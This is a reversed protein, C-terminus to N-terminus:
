GGLTNRKRFLKGGEGDAAGSTGADMAADEGRTSPKSANADDAGTSEASAPKGPTGNNRRRSTIRSVINALGMKLALGHSM